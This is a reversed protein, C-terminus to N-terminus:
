QINHVSDKPFCSLSPSPTTCASGIKDDDDGFFGDSMRHEDLERRLERNEELLRNVKARRLVCLNCETQALEQSTTHKGETHLQGSDGAEQTGEETHLQGSDGAQHAKTEAAQLTNKKLLDRKSRRVSRATDTPTIDRHGLHLSPAWDPDTEMMEYSPQGKHFHRSCVFM